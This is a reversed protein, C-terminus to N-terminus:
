RGEAWSALRPDAGGTLNGTNSDRIIACVGGMEGTWDGIVTIIYGMEELEEGVVDYLGQEMIIEGPRYEHPAFSDPFNVSRFRPEEIAEQIDMGFVVLNLFVQLLAQPQMDGGPTGFSMFLEGNKTVMAANPTIRPRKGPVLADPHEPDLRFQVMRVGLCLGTGPIMPSQPFDSPTLSVSNGFSDTVALYSTDMAPPMDSSGGPLAALLTERDPVTGAEDMFVSPDGPDPMRGFASDKTMAERRLAAYRPDLLGELPVDVFDPDGFYAERDAMALEVAQILAHIYEPSNHGMGELDMGDLIQLMLPLVPGQCWTDNGHITYEGYEGSVPEEWYGAYTELDSKSFLGGEEEHFEIIADAIPGKYFYDRVAMLGDTRTGGAALADEEARAMATLTNALDTQVFRENLNLPRWWQGELYIDVNYPMLLNFGFREILSLDLQKKMAEHVPFGDRALGRASESVEGFSMTGYEDLISILVDPSAPVLQSLITLRPVTEYGESTFFEITAKEPAKGAGCYSLVEGTDAVYLVVPAVSPFSADEPYTVNLALLAAIGADFANGGREMISLAAWTAWPTGSAAMFDDATAAERSVHFPDDIPMEMTERPGKPLLLIVLVVAVVVGLLAAIVTRFFSM